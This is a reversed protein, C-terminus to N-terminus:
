WFLVKQKATFRNASISIFYVGAKVKGSLDLKIVRQEPQCHYTYVLNGSVDHVVISYNDAPLQMLDVYVKKDTSPNPYVSVFLSGDVSVSRSVSYMYKGDQDTEKIRYFNIGAAPSDDQAIYYNIGSINSAPVTAIPKFHQGDTSREVTFNLVNVEATTSWTLNISNTEKSAKFSIFNLPLTSSQDVIVWWPYFNGASVSSFTVTNATTNVTGAAPIDNWSNITNNWRQARLDTESITNSAVSYEADIYTMVLNTLSPKATYGSANIQWFRDVVFASNDSGSANTFSSIGTPLSASNQWGTHYTSLLFSGAGTGASKTFLVPLYNATGYGWPITYAGTTTGINWKVINNESEGIIHGSNRTIANAAPNDVVLYVNNALTIFGGNLVLKSQSNSFHSTLVLALLIFIKNM